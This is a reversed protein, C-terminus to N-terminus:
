KSKIQRILIIFDKFFKEKKKNVELYVLKNNHITARIHIENIKKNLRRKYNHKISIYKKCSSYHLLSSMIDKNSEDM